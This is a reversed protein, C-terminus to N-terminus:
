DDDIVLVLNQQAELLKHFRSQLVTDSSSPNASSSRSSSSSGHVEAGSVIKGAEASCSANLQKRKLPSADAEVSDTAETVASSQSLRGLQQVSSAPSASSSSSSSSSGHGEAGSVIKGAEASCSANLKRRKLLSADAEVSNTAEAVASSQSLLWFQQVERPLPGQEGEVFVVSRMLQEAAAFSEEAAKLREQAEATKRGAKELAVQHQLRQRRVIAVALLAEAEAKELAVQHQRGNVIAVAQLREKQEARELAVQLERRVNAVALVAAGRAAEAAEEAAEIKLAAEAARQQQAALEAAAIEVAQRAEVAQRQAEAAQRQAEAAQRQAENSQRQAGRLEEDHGPEAVFVKVVSQVAARCIPCRGRLTAACPECLAQHGCPVAVMCAAGAELCVVCNGRSPRMQAGAAAVAARRRSLNAGM